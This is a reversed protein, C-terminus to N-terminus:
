EGLMAGLMWQAKEHVTLRDTLLGATVEDNVEASEAVLPRIRAVL